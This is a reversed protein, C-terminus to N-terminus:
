LHPWFLKPLSNYVIRVKLLRLPHWKLKACFEAVQSLLVNLLMSLSPSVSQTTLSCTFNSFCHMYLICTVNKHDVKTFCIHLFIFKNKEYYCLVKLSYGSTDVSDWPNLLIIINANHYWLIFEGREICWAIDCLVYLSLLTQMHLENWLTSEKSMSISHWSPILKSLNCFNVKLWSFENFLVLVTRGRLLSERVFTNNYLFFLLVM